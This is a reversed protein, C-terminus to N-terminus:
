IANLLYRNIVKIKCVKIKVRQLSKPIIVEFGKTIYLVVYCHILSTLVFLRLSPTEAIYPQPPTPFAYM